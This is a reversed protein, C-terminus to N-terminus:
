YDYFRELFPASWFALGYLVVARICSFWWAGNLYERTQGRPNQVIAQKIGVDTFSEFATNLALVIAMLGFAEPALLRTLIINRLFRLGQEIGTGAGLWAGGRVAREKLRQRNMSENGAINREERRFRFGGASLM